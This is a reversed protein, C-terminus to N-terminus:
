GDARAETDLRAGADGPIGAPQAGRRAGLSPVAGTLARVLCSLGVVARELDARSMRALPDPDGGGPIRLMAVSVGLSDIRTHTYVGLTLKPDSHRALEQLDRSGVGAASLASLYSHRLAHFDAYEKGGSGEVVYPVGAAALDPRLVKVPKEAWTGPWVPKGRPLGALYARLQPVIGPHVPQRAPRKNKTYKAPLVVAPPAADLDFDAPTLKALEGARYGTMFATLYLLSRAEGTLGRVVRSSARTTEIIRDLEAPSVERRAHRRDAKPNFGPVPDLLEAPVAVKRALWRVFRRAAALHFDATQASLGGDSLPRGVRAQLYRAVKQPAAAPTLDAPTKLGCGDLVARVRTVVLAVHEPDPATRKRGGRATLGLAVDAEFEALHEALTKRAEARDPLGARGKEAARVMNDLLRQAAERDAALPVRKTPPLGPVGQGYWKPDQERVKKAGPTKPGVRKGGLVYRTRTVRVLRAM